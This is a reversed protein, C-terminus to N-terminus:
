SSFDSIFPKLERNQL